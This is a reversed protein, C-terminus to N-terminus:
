RPPWFGGLFAGFGGLFHDKGTPRWAFDALFLSVLFDLKRPQWGGLIIKKPPKAALYLLSAGFNCILLYFKVAALSIVKRPPWWCGLIYRWWCGLIYSEKAATSLWLFNNVQCANVALSICVPLLFFIISMLAWEMVFDMCIYSGFILIISM